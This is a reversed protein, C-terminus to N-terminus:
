PEMDNFEPCSLGRDRHCFAQGLCAARLPLQTAAQESADERAAGPLPAAGRSRATVALAARRLRAEDGSPRSQGLRPAFGQTGAGRVLQLRCSNSKLNVQSTGCPVTDARNM